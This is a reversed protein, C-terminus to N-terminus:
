KKLSLKGWSVTGESVEVNVEVGPQIILHNRKELLTIVPAQNMIMREMQLLSERRDRDTEAQSSLNGSSLFGSRFGQALTIVPFICIPMWFVKQWPSQVHAMWVFLFRFRWSKLAQVFSERFSQLTVTLGCSGVPSKNKRCSLSGVLPCALALGRERVTQLNETELLQRAKQPDYRYSLLPSRGSTAPSTAFRGHTQGRKEQLWLTGTWPM